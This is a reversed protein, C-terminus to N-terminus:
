AYFGLRALGILLRGINQGDLQLFGVVGGVHEHIGELRIAVGIRASCDIAYVNRDLSEKSLAVEEARRAM